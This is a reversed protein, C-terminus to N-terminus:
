DEGLTKVYVAVLLGAVIAIIINRVTGSKFFEMLIPLIIVSAVSTRIPRTFYGTTLELFFWHGLGKIRRISLLDHCKIADIKEQSTLKCFNWMKGWLNQKLSKAFTVWAQNWDELLSKRHYQKEYFMYTNAKGLQGMVRAQNKACRYFDEGRFYEHEKFNSPDFSINGNQDIKCPCSGFLPKEIDTYTMTSFNAGYITPTGKTKNFIVRQGEFFTHKFPYQSGIISYGKVFLTEIFKCDGKFVTNTFLPNNALFITKNFSVDGYFCYNNFIAYGEFMANDFCYIAPAKNTMLPFNTPNFVVFNPSKPFVFGEFNVSPGNPCWFIYPGVLKLVATKYEQFDNRKKEEDTFNLDNVARIKSDLYCLQSDTNNLSNLLELDARTFGAYYNWNIIKWFLEGEKQTKNRKHFLCYGCNEYVPLNCNHGKNRYGCPINDIEVNM